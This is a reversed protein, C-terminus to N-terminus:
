NPIPREQNAPNILTEYFKANSVMFYPIIWLLGIGLSLVGLLFWGLFRGLFCFYRYKHGMMLQKSKKIADQASMDKNDILLYFAMSYSLAAIVGPVILLLVWLITYLALLLYTVLTKGFISFGKFLDELVPTNGRSFGLFYYSLGFALPGGLILGAIWGIKPISGPVIAVLFYIFTLLVVPKWKGKLLSRASTMIEANTPHM